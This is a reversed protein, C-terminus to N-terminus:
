TSPPQTYLAMTNFKALFISPPSDEMRRHSVRGGASFETVHHGKCLACHVNLVTWCGLLALPVMIILGLGATHELGFYCLLASKSLRLFFEWVVDFITCVASSTFNTSPSPSMRETVFRLERSVVNLMAAAEGGETKFCKKM